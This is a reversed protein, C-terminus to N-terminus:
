SAAGGLLTIFERQKLQDFQMRDGRGSPLIYFQSPDTLPMNSEVRAAKVDTEPCDIPSELEGRKM